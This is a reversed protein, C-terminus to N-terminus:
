GASSGKVDVIRLQFAGANENVSADIMAGLQRLAVGGRHGFTLPGSGRSDRGQSAASSEVDAPPKSMM